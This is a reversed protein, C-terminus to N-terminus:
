LNFQSNPLIYERLFMNLVWKEAVLEVAFAPEVQVSSLCHETLFYGCSHSWSSKMVSHSFNWFQKGWVNGWIINDAEEWVWVNEQAVPM